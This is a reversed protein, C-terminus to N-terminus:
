SGPGRCNDCSNIIAKNYLEVQITTRNISHERRLLTQAENLITMADESNDTAIHVSLATKNLSLSWVHLSHTNRVGPIACLDDVIKQYDVGDPVGEMLVIVIERMITVTTFIVLISFIFTCIPDALKYDPNIKILIAAILVGVSQIFDGIIHIMAARININNNINSNVDSSIDNNLREIDEYKDDHSHGHPMLKGLANGHLVFYMIINFLVGLASVTIMENAYVEFNQHICRRVATYVLITTVIWIAQISILAGLVDARAYAYSLKRPPRKTGLYMATLSILFSGLDIAMHAADTMVATSNSLFGGILEIILFISCVFLVAVLRNRASHDFAEDQVHCHSDILQPNITSDNSASKQNGMSNNNIADNEEINSTM